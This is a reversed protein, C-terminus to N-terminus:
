PHPFQLMSILGKGSTVCNIHAPVPGPVLDEAKVRYQAASGNAIGKMPSGRAGAGKSHARTVLPCKRKVQLWGWRRKIGADQELRRENVEGM